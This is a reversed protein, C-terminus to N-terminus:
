RPRPELRLWGDGITIGAARSLVKKEPEFVRGVGELGDRILNLFGSAVPLRGFRGGKAAISFSTETPVIAIKASVTSPLGLVEREFIIDFNGDNLRVWVGRFEAFMEFGDGERADLVSRIYHNLAAETCEFTQGRVVAARIQELLDVPVAEELASERGDIDDLPEPMFVLVLAGALAIPFVFAVISYLFRLAKM